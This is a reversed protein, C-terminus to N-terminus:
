RIPLAEKVPLAGGTADSMRLQFQWEQAWPEKQDNQCVKVLIENKGPKLTGSGVYQDFRMGHHYEERAFVEKGNLFVKVANICGLRVEVPREKDSEIITFAYAVADKHKALAKNLKVLGVNEVAIKGIEGKENKEPPPDAEATHPVWKVETDGKGKYTASLDVKKEPDYSKDFATGKAGDFPGALMWRTVIGFHTKLDPRANLKDLADAITNAQEEDRVAALLRTYETKAADGTLKEAKTLAAAVADRRLETSPDHLMSPLLRDPTKPDADVLIEYALRRSAPLNKTDKLFAELSDTPLKKGAAKEKEVIANVASRLWNAAAPTADQMAALTPLIADGGHSVLEKWAAGAEQNGAAEMGVAKIRALARQTEALNAASASTATALVLAIVTMRM